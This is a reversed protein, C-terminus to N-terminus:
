SACGHVYVAVQNSQSFSSGGRKGSNYVVFRVKFARNPPLNEVVPDSLRAARNRYSESSAIFFFEQGGNTWYGSLQYHDNRVLKTAKFNVLIYNTRMDHFAGCHHAVSYVHLVARPPPSAPRGLVLPTATLSLAAISAATRRGLVSRQLCSLAKKAKFIATSVGGTTVTQAVIVGKATM